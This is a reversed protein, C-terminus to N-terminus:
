VAIKFAGSACLTDVVAAVGFSSNVLYGGDVHAYGGTLHLLFAYGGLFAFQVPSNCHPCQEPVPVKDKVKRAAKASFRPLNM